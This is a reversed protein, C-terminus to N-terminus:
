SGAFGLGVLLTQPKQLEEEVLFLGGQVLVNVIDETEAVRDQFGEAVGLGDAVVVGRAESFIEVDTQVLAQLDAM